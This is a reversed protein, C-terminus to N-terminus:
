GTRLEVRQLGDRVMDNKKCGPLLGFTFSWFEDAEVNALLYEVSWKGEYKAMLAELLYAGLGMRRWAKVVNFEAMQFIGDEAKRVLAFGGIQGDKGVLWYPWRGEEGWYADFYPYAFIGDVAKADTYISLEKLYTQFIRQFDVKHEFPVLELRFGASDRAM